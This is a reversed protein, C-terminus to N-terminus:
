VGIMCRCRFPKDFSLLSTAEGLSASASSIKGSTSIFAPASGSVPPECFVPIPDFAAGSVTQEAPRHSLGMPLGGPKVSKARREECFADPAISRGESPRGRKGTEQKTTNTQRVDHHFFSM